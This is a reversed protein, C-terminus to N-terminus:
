VHFFEGKKNENGVQKDRPDLLQDARSHKNPSFAPTPNGWGRPKEPDARNM